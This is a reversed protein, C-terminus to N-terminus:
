AKYPAAAIIDSWRKSEAEFKAKEKAEWAPTLVRQDADPKASTYAAPREARDILRLLVECSNMTSGYSASLGAAAHASSWQTNAASVLDTLAAALTKAVAARETQPMELLDNRVGVLVRQVAQVRPDATSGSRISKALLAIADILNKRVARANEAPLDKRHAASAIAAFKQQLALVDTEGTTADKLKRAITEYYGNSADLDEFADAVLSAAAIRKGADSESAPVTREVVLDLGEPTRTFRLVQMAHISRRLDRSKVTGALDAILAQAYAKRFTPTAAPDRAASVLAWRSEEVEAAVTSNKIADTHKSLFEGLTAKQAASLPTTASVIARDLSSQAVASTGVSASLLLAALLIRPIM